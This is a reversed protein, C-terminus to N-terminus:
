ECIQKTKKTIFVDEQRQALHFKNADLIVKGLEWVLYWLPHGELVSRSYATFRPRAGKLKNSVARFGGAENDNENQENQFSM